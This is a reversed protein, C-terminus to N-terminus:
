RFSAHQRWSKWVIDKHATSPQPVGVVCMRQLLLYWYIIFVRCGLCRQHADGRYQTLRLTTREQFKFLWLKSTPSTSAVSSSSSSSSSSLFFFHFNAQHFGQLFMQAFICSNLLNIIRYLWWRPLTGEYFKMPHPTGHDLVALQSYPAWSAVKMGLKGDNWTRFIAHEQPALSELLWHRNRDSRSRVATSQHNVIEIPRHTSAWCKSSGGHSGRQVTLSVQCIADFWGRGM